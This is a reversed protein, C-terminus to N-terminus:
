RHDDASAALPGTEVTLTRTLLSEIGTPQGSPSPLLHRRAQWSSGLVDVHESVHRLSLRDPLDMGLTLSTVPSNYRRRSPQSGLFEQTKGDATMRGSAYQGAVVTTSGTQPRAGVPDVPGGAVTMPPCRPHRLTTDVTRSSSPSHVRLLLRCRRDRNSNLGCCKLAHGKLVSVTPRSRRSDARAATLALRANPIRKEGSARTKQGASCFCGVIAM